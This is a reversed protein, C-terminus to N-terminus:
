AKGNTKGKIQKVGYYVFYTTGVALALIGLETEKLVQLVYRSWDPDVRWILCAFVVLGLFTGMILYSLIRRTISSVSNESALAKQIELWTETFKQAMAAKEQDTFFANDLMGVGSKVTDAVTDVVRSTGFINWFGM